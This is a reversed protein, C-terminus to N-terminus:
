GLMTEKRCSHVRVSGGHELLWWAFIGVGRMFPTLLENKRGRFCSAVRAIVEFCLMMKAFVRQLTRELFGREPRADVLANRRVNQTVREGSMKDFEAIVNAGHRVQQFLCVNARRLNISVGHTTGTQARATRAIHRSSNEACKM